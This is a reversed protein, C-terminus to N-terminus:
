GSGLRFHGLLKHLDQAITALEHSSGDVHGIRGDADALLVALDPDDVPVHDLDGLASGYTRRVGLRRLRSALLDEVTRGDAM